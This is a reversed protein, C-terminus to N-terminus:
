LPRCRCCHTSITAKHCRTSSFNFTHWPAQSPVVVSRAAGVNVLLDSSLGRFDDVEWDKWCDFRDTEFSSGVGCGRVNICVSTSTRRRASMMRM